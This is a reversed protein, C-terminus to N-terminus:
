RRKALTATLTHRTGGRLVDVKVVDGAGTGRLAQTFDMLSQVDVGAFRIIVDGKKVGAKEAPGGKRVGALRVGKVTEGFDPISGFYPGYGGGGKPPPPAPLEVHTPRGEASAFARILDATAGAVRAMGPYSLTAVDDSPRHYHEHAGTFLFLVPVGAAYFSTHDSPGYADGGLEGRLGRQPLARQVLSRMELASDVGLVHLRDDRLHGVMDLNVMAAMSKPPAPSNRVFHASGLLGSEEGAFLVFYIKRRLGSQSAHLARAVEVVVSTGSANDDAGNHVAPETSDHLSGDGGMGLHDYHAGLVVSEGGAGEPELVAGVNEVTAKHRVLTVDVTAEIKKSPSSAHPRHTRDIEAKAALADFGILKAATNADIQTAIVGADSSRNRERLPKITDRVVLLAIAKAERALLAKRRLDVHKTSRRGDFPSKPDDEGPEGTLVVVIKGAADIDAYDDYDHEKATVGYGAFVVEGTISGSSSFAFPEFRDREIKTRGVKLATPEGVTTRVVMEFPQRFRGGFAGTLGIAMLQEELYAAAAAIGATGAGRGDRADDALYAVHSRLVDASISATTSIKVDLDRSAPRSTAATAPQSAPASAAHGAPASAPDSAPAPDSAGEDAGESPPTRKCAAGHALLLAALVAVRHSNRHKHAAPAPAPPALPVRDLESTMQIPTTV